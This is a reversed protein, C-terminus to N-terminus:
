HCATMSWSKMVGVLCSWIARAPLPRQEPQSLPHSFRETHRSHSMRHRLRHASARLWASLDEAGSNNRVPGTEVAPLSGPDNLSSITTTASPSSMQSWISSYGSIYGSARGMRAPEPPSQWWLTVLQNTKLVSCSGIAQLKVAHNFLAETWSFFPKGM